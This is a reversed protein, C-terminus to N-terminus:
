EKSKLKDVLQTYDAFDEDDAYKKHEDSLWSILKHNPTCYDPFLERLELVATVLKEKEDFELKNKALLDSHIAQCWNDIVDGSSQRSWLKDELSQQDVFANDINDNEEVMSSDFSDTLLTICKRRVESNQSSQYIELLLQPGNLKHFLKVTVEHNRVLSSLLFLLKSQSKVDKESKILKFTRDIL